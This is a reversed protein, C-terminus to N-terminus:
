QIFPDYELRLKLKIAQTRMILNSFKRRIMRLTSGHGVERSDGRRNLSQVLTEGFEHGSLVQLHSRLKSIPNKCIYNTLTFDYQILVAGLGIVPDKYSSSYPFLPSM